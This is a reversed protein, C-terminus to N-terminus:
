LAKSLVVLYYLGVKIFILGAWKRLYREWRLLKDVRGAWAGIGFAIALAVVLVPLGTGVAYLAPLYLGGAAASIM